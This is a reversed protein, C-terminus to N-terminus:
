NGDVPIAGKGAFLQDAIGDPLSTRPNLVTYYGEEQPEQNRTPTEGRVEKLGLLQSGRTSLKYTDALVVREHKGRESSTEQEDANKSKTPTRQNTKQANKM